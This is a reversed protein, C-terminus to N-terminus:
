SVGFGATKKSLLGALGTDAEIQPQLWMKWSAHGSLLALIANAVLQWSRDAWLKSDFDNTTAAVVFGAIVSLVKALRARKLALANAKAFLITLWAAATGGLANLILQAQTV